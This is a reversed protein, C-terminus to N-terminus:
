SDSADSSDADLDVSEDAAAAVKDDGLAAKLKAEDENSLSTQYVNGGYQSLGELVKDTTAERVLLFMAAGHEDLSEGVEKIFKNDIGVDTHRGFIGGLVAGFLLWFIPGGFLLGILLGWFGGWVASAGTVQKELTQTVKLKGKDNKVALAADELEILSQKQMDAVANFAAKGKEEDKYTLAVLTSM